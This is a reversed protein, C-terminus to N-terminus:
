SSPCETSHMYRRCLQESPKCHIFGHTAAAWHKYTLNELRLLIRRQLVYSIPSLLETGADPSYHPDPVFTLWNTWTGVDTSVCCKMWIWKRTKQTIKSVSLCVSSRPCFCIGRGKDSTFLLFTLAWSSVRKQKNKLGTRRRAHVTFIQSTRTIVDNVDPLGESAPLLSRSVTVPSESETDRPRLKSGKM